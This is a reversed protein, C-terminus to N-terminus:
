DWAYELLARMVGEEANSSTVVDASSKVAEPANAVAVGLGAMELMGIDNYYNGIAMIRRRDVGRIRALQELARGKTAYRHQVDIFYEGSRIWQLEHNWGNWDREVEDIMDKPGSVTMKVPEGPLAAGPQRLTPRIHFQGYIEEIEPTLREVLVEFATSIDFHLEHRRCYDVFVQLQEERLTYQHIVKRKATEVTAGGNHTIITGELGIEELVPIAGGPGRGTCLVIEAGRRAAERIAECTGQTLKHDDTLLTGDVDLAIIDYHLGM